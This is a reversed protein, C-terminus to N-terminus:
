SAVTFQVETGGAQRMAAIIEGKVGVLDFVFRLPERWTVDVVLPPVPYRSSVLGSGPGTSQWSPVKTMSGVIPGFSHRAIIFAADELGRPGMLELVASTLETTDQSPHSRSRAGVSPSLRAPAPAIVGAARIAKVARAEYVSWDSM